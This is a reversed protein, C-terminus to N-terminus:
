KEEQTPIIGTIEVGREGNRAEFSGGLERAREALSRLGFGPM